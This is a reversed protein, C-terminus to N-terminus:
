KYSRIAPLGGERTIVSQLSTLLQQNTNAINAAHVELRPLYEALSPTSEQTGMGELAVAMREWLVRGYSVDARIGNIYSALLSATDETISKIGSSLSGDSSSSSSFIDIGRKLLEDNLKNLWSKGDEFANIDSTMKDILAAIQEIDQEAFANELPVLYQELWKKQIISRLMSKAVESIAEKGADQWAEWASEGGDTFETWLADAMTESLDGLFDNVVSELEDEATKMAKLTDLVSNLYMKDDESVMDDTLNNILADLRDIDDTNLIGDDGFLDIKNKRVYDALTEYQGKATQILVADMSSIATMAKAVDGVSFVGSRGNSISNALDIATTKLRGAKKKLDAAALAYKEAADTAKDLPFDGFTENFEKLEYNLQQYDLVLQKTAQEIEYNVKRTEVVKNFVASAVPLLATGVGLVKGLSGGVQVATFIGSAIGGVASSVMELNEAQNKLRADDTAEAWEKMGESAKSLAQAVGSVVTGVGASFLGNKASEAEKSFEGYNALAANYRNLQETVASFDLDVGVNKLAQSIADFKKKFLDAKVDLEKNGIIERITELLETFTVNVAEADAKLQDPILGKLSEGKAMAEMEDLYRELQALSKNSMDTLDIGSQDFMEKVWSSAKGSIQEQAVKNNYSVQEDVFKKALDGQENYYKKWAVLAEDITANENKMRYEAIWGDKAAELDKEKQEWELRLQRNKSDTDVLIKDLELSFGDLKLRKTEAQVKAVAEGWKAVEDRSKKLAEVSADMDKGALYNLVDQAGNEDGLAKLRLALSELTADLGEAPLAMDMTSFFFRIEKDNFGMEALDDYHKKLMKANEVLQKVESVEDKITANAAKLENKSEVVMDKLGHGGFLATGMDDLFRMRAEAIAYINDGMRARWEEITEGEQQAMATTMNALTEKDGEYMERAKDKWDKMTTEASAKLASVTINGYKSANNKIYDNIAKQESTLGSDDGIGFMKLLIDAKEGRARKSAVADAMKESATPMNAFENVMSSAEKSLDQMRKKWEGFLETPKPLYEADWGEEKVKEAIKKFEDATESGYMADYMAQVEKRKELVEDKIGGIQKKYYELAFKVQEELTKAGKGAWAEKLDGNNMLMKEYIEQASYDGLLNDVTTVSSNVYSTFDKLFAESVNGVKGYIKKLEQQANTDIESYAQEMGKARSAAEVSKKLNDYVGALDGIALKEKDIATLYNGAYKVLEKRTHEYEETGAETRELIRLYSEMVDLEASTAAVTDEVIQKYKNAEKNLRSFYSWLGAVAGAAASIALVWPNSKKFWSLVAKLKIIVAELLKSTGTTLLLGVRYAAFAVTAGKLVDTLTQMHDVLSKTADLAGAILGRNSDGITSLMIQWSDTLNAVKGKVTDALVEQMNYFKGGASTVREFAEAVMEFPVQRSSIKEFVEGTSVARGELEEFQEALMQLMPIGAETFQRLEQGRLYAASRVQGWALVIRSMDVGLGASVDALKKTTDYLQETPESFASLQKAYSTLEAFTFPSKVALVKLKDFLIDAEKIDGLIAGLAAHQAEFEGTIRVLSGILRVGGLISIYTGVLSKLQSMVASQKLYSATTAEAAAKKKAEAAAAKEAQKTAREQAAAQKDAYNNRAKELGLLSALTKLQRETFKGRQMATILGRAQASLREREVGILSKQITRVKNLVRLENENITGAKEKSLLALRVYKAAQSEAKAKRETSKASSEDAASAVAQIQMAKEIVSNFTKVRTELDTLKKKFDEDKLVVSFSLNDIDAM